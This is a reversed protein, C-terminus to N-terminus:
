PRGGRGRPFAAFTTDLGRALDAREAHNLRAEPRLYLYEGLPMIRKTVKDSARGPAAARKKTSTDLATFNLVARARDVHSQMRWSLPAISSYWPWRTRNSHCDFCARRALDETRPSDFTVMRGDPPPVRNRGYPVLQIAALLLIPLGAGVMWTRTDKM